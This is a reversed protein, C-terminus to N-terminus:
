LTVRRYGDLVNKVDSIWEEIEYKNISGDPYTKSSLGPIDKTRFEYAIQKALKRQLGISMDSLSTIDSNNMYLIAQDVVDDIWTELKSDDSSTLHELYNTRLFEATLHVAM